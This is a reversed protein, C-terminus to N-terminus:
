LARVIATVASALLIILPFPVRRWTAIAAAAVGAARADIVLTQGIAFTNTVILAGLMAPPILTLCSQLSPPLPRGGLVVLGIAKCAYAGAGLALVTWWSV